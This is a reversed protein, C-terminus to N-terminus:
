RTMEAVFANSAAVKCCRTTIKLLLKHASKGCKGKVVSIGLDGCLVDTGKELGGIVINSDVPRSKPGVSKGTVLALGQHHSQVRSTSTSSCRSSISAGSGRGGLGLLGLLLLDVRHLTTHVHESTSTSSSVVLRKLHKSVNFNTGQPYGELVDVQKNYDNIATSISFARKKCL